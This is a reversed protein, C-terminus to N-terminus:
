PNWEITKCNREVKTSLQTCATIKDINETSIKKRTQCYNFYMVKYENNKINFSVAAIYSDYFCNIEEKDKTIITPNGGTVEGFGGGNYYTITVGSDSYTINRIEILPMDMKVTLNTKEGWNLTYIDGYNVGGSDEFILVYPHSSYIHSRDEDSIRLATDLRGTKINKVDALAGNKSISLYELSLDIHPTFYVKVTNNEFDRNKLTINESNNVCGSIIIIGVVLCFVLSKNGM